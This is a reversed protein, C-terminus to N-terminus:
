PEDDGGIMDILSHMQDPTLGNCDCGSDEKKKTEVEYLANLRWETEKILDQMSEMVFGSTPPDFVVKTKLFIYQKVNQFGYKNEGLLDIWTQEPSSLFFGEVGIGLQNLVGIAGNIHVMIDTDFVAYEPDTIGLMKKIDNLISEEM